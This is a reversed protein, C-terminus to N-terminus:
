AVDTARTQERACHVAKSIREGITQVEEKSSSFSLRVWGKSADLGFCCAPISAVGQSPAQGFGCLLALTIDWDTEIYSHKMDSKEDLISQAKEPLPCGLLIDLNVLMYFGGEPVYDAYPFINLPKLIEYLIHCNEQYYEAIPRKKEPSMFQMAAAMGAQASLPPNGIFRSQFTTVDAIYCDPVAMVALREGSFGLAKTGSRFLITRPQLDPAAHLLSIRNDHDFVIEAFAEDLMIPVEPYSRLVAAIDKWEHERLIVGTPNAPNCFLFASIDHGEKLCNDIASQLLEANLRQPPTAEIPFFAKSRDSGFTALEHHNLYWPCPTIIKGGPHRQGIIRFLTALGFQGGPTFVINDASFPISYEKSFGEAAQGRFNKEGLPSTGYPMVHTNQINHLTKLMAQMAHNDAPFSPKGRSGDAVCWGENNLHHVWEHVLQTQTVTSADTGEPRPITHNM